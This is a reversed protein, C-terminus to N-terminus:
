RAPLLAWIGKRNLDAREDFRQVLAIAQKAGARGGATTIGLADDRNSGSQVYRYRHRRREFAASRVRSSNFCCSHSVMILARFCVLPFTKPGPPAASDSQMLGEIKDDRM